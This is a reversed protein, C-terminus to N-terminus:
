ADKNLPVLAIAMLGESNGLTGQTISFAGAVRMSSNLGRRLSIFCLFCYHDSATNSDRNSDTRLFAKYCAINESGGNYERMTIWRITVLKITYTKSMKRANGDPHRVLQGPATTLASGCQGGANRAM